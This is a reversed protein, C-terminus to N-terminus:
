AEGWTSESALGTFLAAAAPEEAGRSADSPALLAVVIMGITDAVLDRFEASDFALGPAHDARVLMTVFMLHGLLIRSQAIPQPCDMKVRMLAMTEKLAPARQLVDELLDGIEATRYCSLYQLLFSAYHRNM